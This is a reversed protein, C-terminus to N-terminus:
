PNSKVSLPKLKNELDQYAAAELLLHVDRVKALLIQTNEWFSSLGYCDFADCYFTNCCDLANYCEGDGAFGTGPPINGSIYVDPNTRLAIHKQILDSKYTLVAFCLEVENKNYGLAVLEELNGDLLVEMDWWEDFHACEEQYDSFNMPRNVPYNWRREWYDLLAKCGERNREVVSLFSKAWNNNDLLIANCLSLKYLPLSHECCGIDNLFRLDISGSEITDIVKEAQNQMVLSVLSDCELYWDNYM